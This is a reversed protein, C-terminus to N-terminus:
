VAAMLRSGGHFAVGLDGTVDRCIPTVGSSLMWRTQGRGYECQKVIVYSRMQGPPQTTEARDFVRAAPEERGSGSAARPPKLSRCFAKLECRSRHGLDRLSRHRRSCEMVLLNRTFRGTEVNAAAHDGPLPSKGVVAPRRGRM